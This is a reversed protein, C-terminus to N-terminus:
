DDEDEDEDEEEEESDSLPPLREDTMEDYEQKYQQYAEAAEEKYQVKLEDIVRKVIQDADYRGFNVQNITQYGLWLGTEDPLDPEEENVEDEGYVQETLIEALESMREGCRGLLKMTSYVDVPRYTDNVVMGIPDNALAGHVRDLEEVKKMLEREKDVLEQTKHKQQVEEVAKREAM